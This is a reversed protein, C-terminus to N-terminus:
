QIYIYLAPFPNVSKNYNRQKEKERISQECVIRRSLMRDLVRCVKKERVVYSKDVNEGGYSEDCAKMLTRYCFDTFGILRQITYIEVNKTSRPKNAIKSNWQQIENYMICLRNLLRNLIWEIAMQYEIYAEYAKTQL